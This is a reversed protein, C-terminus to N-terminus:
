NLLAAGANLYAAFAVWLLLPILLCSAKKDLPRFSLITSFILWFLFLILALALWRAELRFFVLPWLFLGLLQLLYYRLAATREPSPSLRLIRGAALGMLLYLLLWVPAFVWSPPALAPLALASYQQASEPILAASLFGVGLTLGLSILFPKVSSWM